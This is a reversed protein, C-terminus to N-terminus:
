ATWKAQSTFSKSGVSYMSRLCARRMSRKACRITAAARWASASEPREISDSDSRTPAAIAVPIPPRFAKWSQWLSSSSRPGSRTLGNEIGSIMGFMPAAQTEICSPVCPGSLECHVAQAAEFMAIPSPRSAIRSPRASTISQPPVSAGTVSTPIAPKLAIRARERRM